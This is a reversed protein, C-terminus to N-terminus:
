THTGGGWEFIYAAEYLFLELQFYQLKNVRLVAIYLLLVSGYRDHRALFCEQLIISKKLSPFMDGQRMCTLSHSINHHIVLPSAVIVYCYQAIVELVMEFGDDWVTGKIKVKFM